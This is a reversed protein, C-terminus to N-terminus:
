AVIKRLDMATVRRDATALYLREGLASLALAVPAAEPRHSFRTKLAASQGSLTGDLGVTVLLQGDYSMALDRCASVLFPTKWPQGTVHYGRLGESYCALVIPEGNEAVALGGITTVPSDRWLWDGRLLDYAAVWGMDACAILISTGPIFALHQAPRPCVAERCPEGDSYLFVLQGQNTAVAAVLGLPDVALATPKGKLRHEWRPQL